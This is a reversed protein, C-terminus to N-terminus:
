PEACANCQRHVLREVLDAGIDGRPQFFRRTIPTRGHVRGNDGSGIGVRPDHHQAGEIAITPRQTEMRIDARGLHSRDLRIPTDGNEAVIPGCLDLQTQPSCPSDLAFPRRHIGSPGLAVIERPAAIQPFAGTRHRIHWCRAQWLLEFAGFGIVLLDNGGAFIKGDEQDLHRLDVPEAKGVGTM